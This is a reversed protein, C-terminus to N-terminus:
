VWRRRRGPGRPFRVPKLWPHGEPQVAWREAIEREYLQVQPCRPTMSPFREGTVQARALELAGTADAALVLVLELGGGGARHGFLAVVRRGREPAAMVLQRLEELPLRPVRARAM